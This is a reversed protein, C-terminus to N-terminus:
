LKSILGENGLVNTAPLPAMLITTLTSQAILGDPNTKTRSTEQENLADSSDKVETFKMEWVSISPSTLIPVAIVNIETGLAASKLHTTSLEVGVAREGEAALIAGLNGLSEAILSLIGRDLIGDATSSRQSVVFRGKISVPSIWIPEFGIYPLVPSIRLLHAKLDSQALGLSIVKSTAM